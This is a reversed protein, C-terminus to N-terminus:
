RRSIRDIIARPDFRTSQPSPYGAVDEKGPVSAPREAPSEAPEPQPAGPQPTDEETEANEPPVGAGAQSGPENPRAPPAAPTMPEVSTSAPNRDPGQPTPAASGGTTPQPESAGSTWAESQQPNQTATPAGTQQAASTPVINTPKYVRDPQDSAPAQAVIAHPPLYPDREAQYGSPFRGSGPAGARDASAASEAGGPEAGASQRSAGTSGTSSAQSRGSDASPRASASTTSAAGSVSESAAGPSSPSVGAADATFGANSQGHTSTAWVSWGVIAALLAGAGLFAAMRRTSREM